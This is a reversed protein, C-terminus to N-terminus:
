RIPLRASSKASQGARSRVDRVPLGHVVSGQDVRDFSVTVPDGDADLYSAEVSRSEAGVVGAVIRGASVNDFRCACALYTLFRCILHSGVRARDM